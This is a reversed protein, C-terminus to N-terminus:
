MMPSVDDYLKSSLAKETDLDKEVEKLKLEKLKVDKELESVKVYVVRPIHILYIPLAVAVCMPVCSVPLLSVSVACLYGGMSIFQTPMVSPILDTSTELQLRVRDSYKSSLQKQTALQEQLGQFEDSHAAATKELSAMAESLHKESAARPPPPVLQKFTLSLQKFTYM